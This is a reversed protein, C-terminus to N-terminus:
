FHQSSKGLHHLLGLRGGLICENKVNRWISLFMSHFRCGKMYLRDSFILMGQDEVDFLGGCM